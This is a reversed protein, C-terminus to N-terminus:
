ADARRGRTRTAKTQRDKAVGPARPKVFAKGQWQCEDRLVCEHCRPDAPRCVARGHRILGVHLSFVIEAPTIRDMAQHAAEASSKEPILGLRAGVRGVHTDVPMAPRGMAFLLVCAVTKPGIGPFSLLYERVADTDWERLPEMTAAGFRELADRLVMAIRPAKQASLGAPAIAAAIEEETADAAQEMTPFRERFRDFARGSNVDSTSQSLITLVVEELIDGPGKWEPKGYADSLAAEIRIAKRTLPDKV